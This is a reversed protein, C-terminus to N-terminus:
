AAGQTRPDLADRLGDAIFFATLILWAIAISPIVIIYPHSLYNNYGDQALSGWSAKPPNIGLGLFSLFAEGLVVGPLELFVFVVAVGLTNPLLHRFLIRHWRAGVAHAARVYDNEKLTIIQGRMIRATTFWSAVTLAVVMTWFNVSGFIALTIIAFPLYPLGYLADLVRMMLNDLWGGIFGSIAGYLIGVVMIAITAAIGIGISIRGGLATRVFLDRGFEDTGFFHHVNPTQYALSFDVANPDFPSVWPVIVVYLLLIVFGVMSVVAAKNHTFRRYADRWLSAQRLAAGAAYQDDPRGVSQRLDVEEPNLVM